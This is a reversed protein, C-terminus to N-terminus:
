PAQDRVHAKVVTGPMPPRRQRKIKHFREPRNNGIGADYLRDVIPFDLGAIKDQVARGAGEFGTPALRHDGSELPTHVLFGSMGKEAVANGHAAQDLYLRSQKGSVKLAFYGGIRM